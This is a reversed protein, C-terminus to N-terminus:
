YDGSPKLVIGESEHESVNTTDSRDEDFSDSCCVRVSCGDSVDCTGVTADVESEAASSCTEFDADGWEVDSTMVSADAVAALCRAAHPARASGLFDQNEDRFTYEM